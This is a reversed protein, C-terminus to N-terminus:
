HIRDYDNDTESVDEVSVVEFLDEGYGVFRLTAVYWREGEYDHCNVKQPFVYSFCHMFQSVLYPPLMEIKQISCLDWEREGKKPGTSLYLGIKLINCHPNNKDFFHM